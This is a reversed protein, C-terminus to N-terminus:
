PRPGGAGQLTYQPLDWAPNPPPPNLDLIIPNDPSGPAPAEGAAVASKSHRGARAIPKDSSEEPSSSPEPLLGVLDLARDVDPNAMFWSWVSGTRLNEASLLTIGADIGLVYPSVWGTTPNFADAFGYPGYIQRGYKVLMSRLAPICIDPAFMLSGGAASPVVTGDIRPDDATGGWALYGKASESATIGWIESSYGPFKRSLAVAMAQQARTAAVANAFYNVNPVYSDTPALQAQTRQRLDVYAQSYQQIFLPGGGVYTYNDLQVVPLKWNYWSSPSIPHTPSGIALVYLIMLESYSDWDSKIFGTEPRWGHRLVDRSGDLMWRFNVRNYILTALTVIEPDDSFARRATLIGALLLATDISSVESQWVRQGTSADMFHYFWGHVQPAQYAFFRLTTLIRARATERSIWRHEAAICLATLGFGTAAISSVNQHWPQDPKGDSRVRDLVLGTHPDAQDWFYRFSRRENDDLLDIDLRSLVAQGAPRPGVAQAAYGTGISTKLLILSLCGGLVRRRLSCSGPSGSLTRHALGLGSRSNRRVWIMIRQASTSCGGRFIPEELQNSAASGKWHNTINEM